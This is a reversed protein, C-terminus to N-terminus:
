CRTFVINPRWHFRYFCDASFLVGYFSSYSKPLKHLFLARIVLVANPDVRGGATRETGADGETLGERSRGLSPKGPQM